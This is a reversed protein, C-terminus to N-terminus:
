VRDLLRHITTGLIGALAAWPDLTTLFCVTGFLLQGWLKHLWQRHKPLFFLFAGVIGLTAIVSVLLGYPHLVAISLVGLSLLISRHTISKRSDIDPFVSGVVLAMAAPPYSQFFLGLLAGALLHINFGPM